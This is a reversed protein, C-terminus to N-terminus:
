KERRLTNSLDFYQCLQKRLKDWLWFHLKLSTQHRAGAFIRRTPIQNHSGKIGWGRVCTDFIIYDCLIINFNTLSLMKFLTKYPIALFFFSRTQEQRSLIKKDTIGIQRGRSCM